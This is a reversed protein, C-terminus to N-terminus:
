EGPASAQPPLEPDGTRGQVWVPQDPGVFNQGRVILRDGAELGDLIQVSRGRLFGLKVLRRKAKDDNVIYVAYGDELPIVSSLPVMIVDRLQRRKLVVRVIQGTKLARERNDVTIEVRTTRTRVDALESTYTIKGTVLSQEEPFPPEISAAEGVRVYQIDREPVDVVVQVTEIDVIEAVQEGERVYEGKEVPLDNLIGDIPAKIHARELRYRAIRFAAKGAQLNTEAQDLEKETVVNERILNRIRKLEEKYFDLQSAARDYKAQYLETNLRVLEDGAKCRSGEERAIEEIRGPVEAPVKVVRNAEVVGPLRFTEVLEPEPRIEMVEVNQPPPETAEPPDINKPIIAVIVIGGVAALVVVISILWKLWVRKRRLPRPPSQSEPEM